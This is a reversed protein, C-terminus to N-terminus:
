TGEPARGCSRTVVRLASGAVFGIGAAVMLSTALHRRAFRRLGTIADGLDHNEIYSATADLRDATRTSYNDIAESSKRGTTRVSSAASHLADGTENRAEDLRIGGARGVEEISEKAQKGLEAAQETLRNITTLINRWLRPHKDERAEISLSPVNADMVSVFAPCTSDQAVVHQFQSFQVIPPLIQM